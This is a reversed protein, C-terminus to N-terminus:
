RTASALGDAGPGSLRDLSASRGTLLLLLAEAASAADVPMARARGLPVTIDQGHVLVDLLPELYTVGPARRRSGAMARIEEVLERTSANAHRRATERVMRDFSGGTRLMSVAANGAGMHALALHAVVERIRWGTCLSPHAWEDDSLGGLLDALELRERDIVTWATDEDMGATPHRLM